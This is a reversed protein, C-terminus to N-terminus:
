DSRGPRRAAIFLNNGRAAVGDGLVAEQEIALIRAFTDPDELLHAISATSGFLQTEQQGPYILVPFGTLQTIALGHRDCSRRLDDPGFLHMPPMDATFRGTGRAIASIAEDVHHGALSFFAAHYRNPAVLVLQGGPRLSAALRGIARDPDSVFGLVNHFCIALDFRDAPLADEGAQELDAEVLHLRRTVGLREAKGRAVALMHPSLDLLVGSADQCADLVKLIWRGTGGGADLVRARPPLTPLVFRDLLWWLLQDSLRWYSQEDVADYAAAKGAFYDLVQTRDNTMVGATSLLRGEL